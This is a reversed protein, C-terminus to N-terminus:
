HSVGLFKYALGSFSIVILVYPWLRVMQKLFSV